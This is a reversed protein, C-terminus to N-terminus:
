NGRVQRSNSVVGGGGGSSVIKGPTLSRPGASVAARPGVGGGGAGLSKPGGNVAVAPGGGRDRSASRFRPRTQRPLSPCESSSSQLDAERVSQRLHRRVSKSSRPTKPRPLASSSMGAMSDLKEDM